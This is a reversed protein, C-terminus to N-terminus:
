MDIFQSNKPPWATADEILSASCLLTHGAVTTTGNDVGPSTHCDLMHVTQSNGTTELSSM